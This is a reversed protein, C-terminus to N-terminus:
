TKKLSLVPQKKKHDLIKEYIKLWISLSPINDQM